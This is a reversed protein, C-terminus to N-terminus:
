FAEVEWGGGHKKARAKVAIFKVPHQAAAIKIKCRADGIWYGKVEHAEILGSKPLVMFDPTYFTNDALKFKWAEFGYWQIEGVQKQAELYQAYAAETKNMAGSKLRGLALINNNM